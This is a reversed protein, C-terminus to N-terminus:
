NTGNILGKLVNVIAPIEHTPIIFHELPWLGVGKSDVEYVEVGVSRAEGKIAIPTYTWLSIATEAKYSIITKNCIIENKQDNKVFHEATSLDNILSPLCQTPILVGRSTRYPKGKLGNWDWYRLDANRGDLTTSLMLKTNYDIGMGWLFEHKVIEDTRKKRSKM